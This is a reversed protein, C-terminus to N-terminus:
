AASEEEDEPLTMPPPVEDAIREPLVAPEEIDAADAAAAQKKAARTAAAKERTEAKRKETTEFYVRYLEYTKNALSTQEKAENTQQRDHYIAHGESAVIILLLFCDFAPHSLLRILLHWLPLM